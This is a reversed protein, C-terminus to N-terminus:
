PVRSRVSRRRPANRADSELVERYIREYRGVCERIGFLSKARSRGARGMAVAQDRDHILAAIARALAAPRGPPVILGTVGDDVLEANGGSRAAIVPVGAAMAELIANSCSEGVGPHVVVDLDRIADPGDSEGLTMAGSRLLPMAENRVERFYARSAAGTHLRGRISFRAPEEQLMRAARVFDEHRKQVSFHAVLGVRLAGSRRVSKPRSLPIGNIVVDLPPSGPSPRFASAVYRSNCIIRQSLLRVLALVMDRDAASRAGSGYAVHGGLRWIHPVGAMSAARALSTAYYNSQVLVIERAEILRAMRRIAANGSYGGMTITELGLREIARLPAGARAAIVIPQWRRGLLPLFRSLFRETGGLTSPHIEFLVRRTETM